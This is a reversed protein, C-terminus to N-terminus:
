LGLWDPLFARADSDQSWRWSNICIDLHPISPDLMGDEGARGLSPSSLESSGAGVRLHFSSTLGGEVSLPGLSSGDLRRFGKCSRHLRTLM